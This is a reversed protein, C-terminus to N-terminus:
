DKRGIVSRCWAERAAAMLNGVSILSGTIGKVEIWAEASSKSKFFNVKSCWDDCVSVGACPDGMFILLSMDQPVGRLFYLILGDNTSPDVSRAFGSAQLAGFIGLVDFACWAWFIRGEISMEHKTHLLSLGGAGVICGEGDLQLHGARQLTKMRAMVDDTKRHLERSLFDVKVREGSNLLTKFATMLIDAEGADEYSLISLGRIAALLQEENPLDLRCSTQGEEAPPQGTVDFGNVLLTPSNYDGVLEEVTVRIDTKELCNNLTSRVKKALPCDPVFLLQVKIPNPGGM